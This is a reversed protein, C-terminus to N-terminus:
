HMFTSRAVKKAGTTACHNGKIVLIDQLDAVMNLLSEGNNKKINAWFFFPIIFSCLM